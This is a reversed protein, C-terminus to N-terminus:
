EAGYVRGTLSVTQLIETTSSANAATCRVVTFPPILLYLPGNPHPDIAHGVFYSQVVIDNFYVRYQFDDSNIAGYNFQITADIFGSGCTFNLLDTETNTCGVSGSVAYAWNGIYRIGLGTSAISASVPITDTHPM